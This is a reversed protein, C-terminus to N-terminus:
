GIVEFHVLDQFREDRVIWNQNWDGGWRLRIGLSDGVALVYGAFLIFRDRDNWDIPLPAIDIARSRGNPDERSPDRPDPCNHKSKPWPTKSTGNKVAADQDAKGRRGCLVGVPLKTAVARVVRQIEDVCTELRQESLHSLVPMGFPYTSGM